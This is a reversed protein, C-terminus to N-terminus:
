GIWSGRGWEVGLDMEFSSNKRVKKQKLLLIGVQHECQLAINHPRKSYVLLRQKNFTTNSSGCLDRESYTTSESILERFEIQRWWNVGFIPENNPSKRCFCPFYLLCEYVCLCWWVSVCVCLWVWHYSM